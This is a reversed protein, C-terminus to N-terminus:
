STEMTFGTIKEGHIRVTCLVSILVEYTPGDDVTGCDDEEPSITASDDSTENREKVMCVVGMSM